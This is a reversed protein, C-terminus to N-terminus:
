SSKIGIHVLITINPLNLLLYGVHALIKVLGIAAECNDDERGIWVRVSQAQEFVNKMQQVQQGREVLDDQNVCIPM